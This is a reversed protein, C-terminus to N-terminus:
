EYLWTRNFDQRYLPLLLDVHVPFSGNEISFNINRVMTATL